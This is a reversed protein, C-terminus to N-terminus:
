LMEELLTAADRVFKTCKTEFLEDDVATKMGEETGIDCGLLERCNISGNLATFKDALERVIDYTKEKADGDEANTSAHKLGIVMFAGVVAGCTEAMRAMGGGFAGSVRLATKPELGFEEGYTSIIAQACSYGKQFQSVANEVRSV